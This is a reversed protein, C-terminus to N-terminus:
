ITQNSASGPADALVEIRQAGGIVQYFVQQTMWFIKFLIQCLILIDTWSACISKRHNHKSCYVHKAGHCKPYSSKSVLPGTVRYSHSLSPSLVTEHPSDLIERGPPPPPTGVRLKSCFAIIVARLHNAFTINECTDTHGRPSAPRDM